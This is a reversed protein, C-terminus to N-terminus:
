NSVVGNASIMAIAAGEIGHVFVFSEDLRGAFVSKMMFLFM